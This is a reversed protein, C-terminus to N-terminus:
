DCSVANSLIGRYLALLKEKEGDWSRNARVEREGIRGMQGALARDDHLKRIAAAVEDINEPDVLIGCETEEIFAVNYASASLVVPIGNSLYEPVKTPLGDMLWYQGVNLLTSAGAFCEEMVAPLDESPLMGRYDVTSFEPLAKLETLYEDSIGGCLILPVGAAYAAKVLHTIGREYTLSGIYCIAKRKEDGLSREALPPLIPLNDVTVVPISLDSFYNGTAPISPVVVAAFHRLAHAEYLGYMKAVVAAVPKSLYPKSRLQERYFEHSDFVVAKGRKALKVGYPLLEPDHIHYLDANVEVARHYVESATRTMREKRGSAFPVCLVNVDNRIFDGEGQAILYTEYGAEALSTCEKKFIRGDDNDHASTLHCVKM